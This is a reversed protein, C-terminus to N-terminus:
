TGGKMGAQAQQDYADLLALLGECMRRVQRLEPDRGVLGAWVRPGRGSSAVSDAVPTARNKRLREMGNRLKDRTAPIARGTRRFRWLLSRDVGIERAILAGSGGYAAILAEVERQLAEDRDIKPM